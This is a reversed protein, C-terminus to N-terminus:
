HKAIVHWDAILPINLFMDRRFVLSGPSGNLTAMVNTHMTQMVMALAEDVLSNSDEVTQPPLAHVLLKLVNGMKQHMSQCIANSQPNRSMM